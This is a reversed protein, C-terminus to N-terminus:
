SWTVAEARPRPEIARLASLDSALRVIASAWTLGAGFAVLALSDGPQVRGDDLAEALALPVSAASTNGYRDVNVAVKEMPLGAQEAAYEIIRRNAQHPVFLDIDSAAMAADALAADLAQGMIRTAFKFVERGNMKINLLGEDIAEHTPPRAVGGAPVIIHEAGTGDSGLVHGIVGCPEDTAQVVVAGSGDGFLVATNRNDHRLWRSILETGIVLITDYSGAQIFQQATVLAYVFGTCGVTIQMAGVGEAGLMAQVQSSVPPTLYDPSSTAVLILDLDGPDIGARDLAARGSAASMTATTEDEGAFRRERIGSRSRIWEDSTDMKQALDDNTVVRSPAYKGWGTISAYRPQM